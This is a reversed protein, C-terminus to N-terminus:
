CMEQQLLRSTVERLKTILDYDGDVPDRADGQPAARGPLKPELAADNSGAAADDVDADPVAGSPSKPQLVAEEEEELEDGVASQARASQLAAVLLLAAFCAAVAQRKMQATLVTAHCDFQQM